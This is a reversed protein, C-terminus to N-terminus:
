AQDNTKSEKNWIIKFEFSNEWEFYNNIKGTKVLPIRLIYTVIKSSIYRLYRNPFSITKKGVREINIYFVAYFIKGFLRLRSRKTIKEFVLVGNYIYVYWRHYPEDFLIEAFKSPTEIYGRKGVRILEKCFKEPNDVHEAIHSAIIYDFEKNGFPMSEADGEVFVREKDAKLPKGSRETDDKLHKDLLVNAKPHPNHGSGVDLVRWGDQIEIEYGSNGVKYKPVRTKRRRNERYIGDLMQGVAEYSFRDRGYQAVKESSYEHYHNLMDEIAKSLANANKPPVLKGVEETVIENPGGVNTAIVPKGCAMAEILVVGFTEVLSPLVFFDTRKMFEAVEPKTKLGHFHVTDQLGLKKALEEYESRNSGDGVIDLVFDDRKERLHGLAELLYPIGKIPVLGAVTLLRKRGDKTSGRDVSPFFLSTDVVNPIVQFCARIGLREIHKRLNDSVPCVLSARDFAFKAKRRELGNLLGRPFGSFHETIVVPIGYRKGLLVAFVGASYVHAHIIDPKWGGKRLRRFAAFISWYYLLDGIAVRPIALTRALISVPKSATNSSVGEAQKQRKLSRWLHLLFGGYKVRITRIGDEIDESIRYLGKPQPSPDVCAYLVVIDNYLSAAKAHEKIFIGAVPNAESPYWAPFFLVKLDKRSQLADKSGDM